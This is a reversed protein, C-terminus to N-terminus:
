ARQIQASNLVISSPDFSYRYHENAISILQPNRLVSIAIHSDACGANVILEIISVPHIIIFITLQKSIDEM